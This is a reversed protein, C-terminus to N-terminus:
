IQKIKEWGVGRNNNNSLTKILNDEIYKIVTKIDDVKYFKGV